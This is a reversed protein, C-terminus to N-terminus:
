PSEEPIEVAVPDLGDVMVLNSSISRFVATADGGAHSGVDCNAM